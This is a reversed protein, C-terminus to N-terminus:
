LTAKEKNFIMTKEMQQRGRELGAEATRRTSTNSCGTLHQMVPTFARFNEEIELLKARSGAQNMRTDCTACRGKITVTKENRPVIQASGPRPRSPKRCKFCFLEDPKCQQKRASWKAKLWAKLESGLVLTPTQGDLTPLDDRVWSRVTAVNRDLTKAIEPVKYTKTTRIRRLDPKRRPPRSM